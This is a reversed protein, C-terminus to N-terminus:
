KELQRTTKKNFEWRSQLYLSFYPWLIDTKKKKNTKSVKFTQTKLGERNKKGVRFYKGGKWGYFLQKPRKGIGLKYWTARYPNM